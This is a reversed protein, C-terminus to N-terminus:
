FEKTHFLFTANGEVLTPFVAYGSEDKAGKDGKQFEKSGKSRREDRSHLSFVNRVYAGRNEFYHSRLFGSGHVLIEHIPPPEATM